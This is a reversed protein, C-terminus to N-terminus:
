RLGWVPRWNFMQPFDEPLSVHRSAAECAVPCSSARQHVGPPIAGYGWAVLPRALEDSARATTKCAQRRISARSVIQPKHSISISVRVLSETVRSM